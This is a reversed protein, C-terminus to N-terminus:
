DANTAVEKANKNQCLIFDFWKAPAYKQAGAQLQDGKVENAGHMSSLDGTPTTQGIFEVHLDVDAGFKAVVDKFAAEAQVGYPCQSMVFLDVPVSGPKAPRMGDSKVTNSEATAQANHSVGGSRDLGYIFGM